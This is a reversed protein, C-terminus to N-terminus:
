AGKTRMPSVLAGERLLTLGLSWDAVHERQLRRQEGDLLTWLDPHGSRLAWSTRYRRIFDGVFAAYRTIPSAAALQAEFGPVFDVAVM